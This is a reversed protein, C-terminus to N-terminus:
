NQVKPCIYLCIFFLSLRNSIYAYRKSNLLIVFPQRQIKLLAFLNHLLFLLYGSKSYDLSKQKMLM